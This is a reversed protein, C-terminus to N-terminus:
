GANQRKAAQADLMENAKRKAANFAENKLTQLDDGTPPHGNELSKKLVTTVDSPVKGFTEKAKEILKDSEGGTVHSISKKLISGLGSQTLFNNAKQGMKYFKSATQFAGGMFSKLGTKAKAGFAKLRQLLPAKKKVTTYTPM